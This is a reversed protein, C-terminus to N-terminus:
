IPDSVPFRFLDPFRFPLYLSYIACKGDRFATLTRRRLARVCVMFTGAAVKWERFRALEIKNTTVPVQTVEPEVKVETKKEAAPPFVAAIKVGNTEPKLMEDLAEKMTSMTDVVDPEEEFNDQSLYNLVM